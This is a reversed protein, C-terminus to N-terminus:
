ERGQVGGGFKEVFCHNCFQRNRCFIGEKALVGINVFIEVV